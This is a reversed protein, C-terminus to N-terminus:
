HQTMMRVVPVVTWAHEAGGPHPPRRVAESFLMRETIKLGERANGIKRKMKLLVRLDADGIPNSEATCVSDSSPPSLRSNRQLKSSTM